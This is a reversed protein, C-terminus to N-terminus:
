VSLFGGLSPCYASYAGDSTVARFTKFSSMSPTRIQTNSASPVKPSSGRRTHNTSSAPALARATVHQLGSGPKLYESLTNVLRVDAEMLLMGVDM